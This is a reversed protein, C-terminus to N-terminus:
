FGAATLIEQAVRLRQCDAFVSDAAAAIEEALAKGNGLAIEGIIQRISQTNRLYRTGFPDPACTIQTTPPRVVPTATPIVAQAGVTSCDGGVRVAQGSVWGNLGSVTINYWTVNNVTELAEVIVESGPNLTGVLQANASPTQRVNVRQNTATAVRCLGERSLPPLIAPPTATATAPPITPAATVAPPRTPVVGGNIRAIRTDSDPCGDHPATGPIDWCIDVGDNLGDGDTDVPCGNAGTQGGYRSGRGDVFPCADGTMNIGDGDPDANPDDAPPMVEPLPVQTPAVEEPPVPEETAVPCGFNTPSGYQSPCRDITDTLGDKDSDPDLQALVPLVGGLLLM